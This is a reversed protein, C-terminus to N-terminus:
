TFYEGNLFVNNLVITQIMQFYWESTSLLLGDDGMCMRQNLQCVPLEIKSQFWHSHKKINAAQCPTIVDALLTVAKDAIVGPQKIFIEVFTYIVGYGMLDCVIDHVHTIAFATLWMARFPALDHLKQAYGLWLCGGTMTKITHRNASLLTKTVAAGTLAMFDAGGPMATNQTTLLIQATATM